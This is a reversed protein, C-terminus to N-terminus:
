AACVPTIVLIICLSGPTLVLLLCCVILAGLVALHVQDPDGVVLLKTRPGTIHKVLEFQCLNIDQVEDVLIHQWRRHIYGQIQLPVPVCVCVSVVCASLSAICSTRVDVCCAINCPEHWHSQQKTTSLAVAHWGTVTCCCALWHHVLVVCLRALGESVLLTVTLRTFAMCYKYLARQVAPITYLYLCALLLVSVEPNDRVMAMAVHLLDDLDLRMGLQTHYDEWIDAMTYLADEPWNSFPRVGKAALQKVLEIGPTRRINGDTVHRHLM